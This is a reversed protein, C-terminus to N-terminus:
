TLRKGNICALIPFTAHLLLTNAAFGAQVPFRCFFFGSKRGAGRLVFRKFIKAVASAAFKM